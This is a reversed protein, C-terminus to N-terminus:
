REVQIINKEPFLSQFLRKEGTTTQKDRDNKFHEVIRQCGQYRIFSWDKTM